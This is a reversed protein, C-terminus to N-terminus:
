TLVMEEGDGFMERYARVHFAALFVPGLVPVYSAFIGMAMGLAGITLHYGMHSQFHVVSTKLASIPGEGHLYIMPSYFGLVLPVLLVPVYCFMVLVMAIAGLLVAGGMVKAVDQSLTEFASGFTLEGEGRQYAAIARTLSANFPALLAGLGAGFAVIGLFFVLFFLLQALLMSVGGATEGLMSGIIGAFIGVGLMGGFMGFIMGLYMVVIAVLVIPMVVLTHGLGALLYPGIDDTVDAITANLLKGVDPADGGVVPERVVPEAM